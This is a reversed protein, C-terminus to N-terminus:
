LPVRLWEFDLDDYDHGNEGQFLALNSFVESRGELTANKDKVICDRCLLVNKEAVGRYQSWRWTSCFMYQPTNYDSRVLVHQLYYSRREQPFPDWRTPISSETMSPPAGKQRFFIKWRRHIDKELDYTAIDKVGPLQVSDLVVHLYPPERNDYYKCVMNSLPPLLLLSLTHRLIIEAKVVNYLYHVRPSGPFVYLLLEAKKFECAESKWKQLALFACVKELQLENIEKKRETQFLGRKKSALGEIQEERLIREPISLGHLFWMRPLVDLRCDYYLGQRHCRSCYQVKPDKTDDYLLFDLDEDEEASLVGPLM